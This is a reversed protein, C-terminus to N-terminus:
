YSEASRLRQSTIEFTKELSPNMKKLVPVVEHRILNRKYITVLIPAIKEIIWDIKM